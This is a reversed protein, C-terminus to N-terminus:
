EVVNFTVSNGTITMIQHQDRKRPLVAAEKVLDYIRGKFTVQYTGPISLDYASSLDVDISRSAGPDIM